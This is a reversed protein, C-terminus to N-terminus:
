PCNLIATLSSIIGAWGFRWCVLQSCIGEPQHVTKEWNREPWMKLPKWSKPRYKMYKAYPNQGEWSIWYNQIYERMLINDSDMNNCFLSINLDVRRQLRSTSWWFFSRWGPVAGVGGMDERAQDFIHQQRQGYSISLPIRVKKMIRNFHGVKAKERWCSSSGLPMVVQSKNKDSGLGIM